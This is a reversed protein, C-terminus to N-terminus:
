KVASVLNRFAILFAKPDKMAVIIDDVYVVIYEWIDGADHMWLNPDVKSHHFRLNKLVVCLWEHFHFGSTCLGYLTKETIMTHGALHGFEPGTVFYVKEQTYSELYANGIDGQM